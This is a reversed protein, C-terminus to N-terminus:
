DRRLPVVVETLYDGPTAATDPGTLYLERPPGAQQHGHERIWAFVAEYAAGIEDYRGRHFTTAVPGEPLVVIDIVDTGAPRGSIPLYLDLDVEEGPAPCSLQPPGTPTVASRSAFDYLNQLGEGVASAIRAATTHVRQHCTVTSPFETLTVDYTM